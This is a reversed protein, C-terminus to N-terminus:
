YSLGRVVTPGVSKRATVRFRYTDDPHLRIIAGDGLELETRSDLGGFAAITAGALSIIAYLLRADGNKAIRRALDSRGLQRALDAETEADLHSKLQWLAFGVGGIAFPLLGAKPYVTRRVLRVPTQAAGRVYPVASDDMILYRIKQRPINYRDGVAMSMGPLARAILFSPTEQTVAMPIDFYTDDVYLVETIIAGATASEGFLCISGVLLLARTSDHNWPHM